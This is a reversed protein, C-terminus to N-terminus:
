PRHSSAARRTRSLAFRAPGPSRQLHARRYEGRQPRHNAAAPRGPRLRHLGCVPGAPRRFAVLLHNYEQPATFKALKRSVDDYTLDSLQGSFNLRGLLRKYDRVTRSRRSKGKDELFLNVAQAFTLSQPRVKGLTFEALLKKAEIRAEALKLVGFRGITILNNDRNLVFTKSGGQSVRVGFSPLSKDWYKQQGREPLPLSRILADSFATKAM